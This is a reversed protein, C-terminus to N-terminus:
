FPDSPVYTVVWHTILGCFHVMIDPTSSRALKHYTIQASGPKLIRRYRTTGLGVLHNFM